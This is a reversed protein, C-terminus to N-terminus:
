LLAYKRACGNVVMIQQLCVAYGALGWPCHGRDSYYEQTQTSCSGDEIGVLSKRHSEILTVTIAVRTYELVKGSALGQHVKLYAQLWQGTLFGLSVWAEAEECVTYCKRRPNTFVPSSGDQRWISCTELALLHMAAGFRWQAVAM